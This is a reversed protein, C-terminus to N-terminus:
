KLIDKIEDLKVRFEQIGLVYPGIQYQGFVFVLSDGELYWVSFNDKNPETGTKLTEIDIDDKLKEKFYVRAKESIIKQWQSTNFMDSDSLLKNKLDYNFTKISTGGHAGGTYTYTELIYSVTKSTTAIKTDMFLEYKRGDGFGLIEADEKSIDGFDKDFDALVRSIFDFVETNKNKALEKNPINLEVNYYQKEILTKSLPLVAINKDANNKYIIFVLSVLALIVVSYIIKKM